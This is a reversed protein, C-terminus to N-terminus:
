EVSLIYHYYPQGGPYSEVETHPFCVEIEAQLSEAAAPDTAEGHYLTVLELQEAGIVHLLELVCEAPTEGVCILEGNHLGIIQGESVNHGNLKVSRTATTVEGTEVEDARV